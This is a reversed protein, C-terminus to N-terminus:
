EREEPGAPATVVAGRPGHNSRGGDALRREPAARGAASAGSGAIPAGAAAGRPGRREHEDWPEAAGRTWRVTGNRLSRRDAARATLSAGGHGRARASGRGAPAGAARRRALRERGRGFATRGEP